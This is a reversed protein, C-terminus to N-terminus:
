SKKDGYYNKSFGRVEKGLLANWGGWLLGFGYAFVQILLTLISLLAVTLNHYRFLSQLFAFLCIATFGYFVINWLFLTPPYLCGTFLSIIGLAFLGAILMAPLLHVLKLTHPHRRSLNIRAVGWNFIQRFFKPISTRRKHYVHADAILGVKFGANYIRMSYDMDQGHRLGGMGGIKNYIERSIGMNFSRPYFRGVHKKNGRTGGTGIFSTMSYNIAKLLPSFSPHCTDPGGFADYHYENQAKEIEVLWQPPFMCDSDVFIFYEGRAESMGHNRAAGPGQNQQYIARTQLGSASHYQEIFERFGDKSGDDVFLLEFSNRDGELKEASELLEKVEELRNYVAIIISYKM